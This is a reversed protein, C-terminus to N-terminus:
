IFLIVYPWCISMILSLVIRYKANLEKQKMEAESLMFGGASGVIDSLTAMIFLLTSFFAVLLVIFDLVVM